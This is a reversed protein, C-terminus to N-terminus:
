TVKKKNNNNMKKKEKRLEIATMVASATTADHAPCTRLVIVNNLSVPPIGHPHATNTMFVEEGVPTYVRFVFPLIREKNCRVM